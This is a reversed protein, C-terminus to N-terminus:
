EIPVLRYRKNNITIEDMRSPRQTLSQVWNLSLFNGLFQVEKDTDGFVWGRFDMKPKTTYAFGEGNRDIAFYQYQSEVKDWDITM